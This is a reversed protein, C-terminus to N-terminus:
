TSGEERSAPLSGIAALAGKAYRTMALENQSQRITDLADVAVRLRQMAAEARAREYREWYASNALGLHEPKEKPWEPLRAPSNSPANTVASGWMRVSRTPTATHM